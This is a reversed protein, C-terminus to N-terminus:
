RGGSNRVVENQIRMAERITEDLDDFSEGAKLRREMDVMLAQVYELRVRVKRPSEKFAQKWFALRSGYFASREISQMAWLPALLVIGWEPIWAALFLSWFAVLPYSRYELVTDTVLHPMFQSIM